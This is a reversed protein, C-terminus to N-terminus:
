FAWSQGPFGVRWWRSWGYSYWNFGLNRGLRSMNPGSQFGHFYWCYIVFNPYMKFNVSPREVKYNKKWKLWTSSWSSRSFRGSSIHRDRRISSAMLIISHGRNWGGGFTPSTLTMRLTFLYMVNVGDANTSARFHPHFLVIYSIFNVKPYDLLNIFLQHCLSHKINCKFSGLRAM